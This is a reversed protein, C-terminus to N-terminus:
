LRRPHRSLEDCLYNMFDRFTAFERATPPFGAAHMHLHLATSSLAWLLENPDPDFAGLLRYIRDYTPPHSSPAAVGFHCEYKILWLLSVAIAQQRKLRVLDCCAVMAPHNQKCYQEVHGLVFDSAWSDAEKEQQHSRPLDDPSPEHGLVIHALEHFLIWGLAMLTLDYALTCHVDRRTPEFPPPAGTPPPPETALTSTRPGVRRALECTTAWRLTDLALLFSPDSVDAVRQIPPISQTAQRIGEYATSYAWAHYWLMYVPTIPVHVEKTTVSTRFRVDVSVYDPVFRVGHKLILRDIESTREPAFKHLLDVFIDHSFGPTLNPSLHTAAM